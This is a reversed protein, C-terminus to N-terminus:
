ESLEEDKESQREAGHPLISCLAPPKDDLV